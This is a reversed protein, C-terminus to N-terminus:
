GNYGGNYTNIEIHDRLLKEAGDVTRVIIAPIDRSLFLSIGETACYAGALNFCLTDGIDLSPMSIRRVLIDNVSCLSGALVYDEMSSNKSSITEVFPIKMGAMSGYYTIQHLGGDLIAYNTDDTRKVDVVSTFYRGCTAAIYRGYEFTIEGFADRLGTNNVLGMLDEMYSENYLPLEEDTLVKDDTRYYDIGLGPGYELSLKKGYKESLEYGYSTLETLEKEIKKLSKQTGSFFHIGVLELYKSELIRECLEELVKKEVGFQNGSSLRINCRLKVLKSGSFDRAENELIRFQEPSEISFLGSAGGLSLIRKISDGTKNVGSVLIKKPAIGDRVCIEYEGPSCVELRDVYDAAYRTLYPGAKMAYCLGIGSQHGKIMDIRMKLQAIDFHYFPTGYEKILEQDKM